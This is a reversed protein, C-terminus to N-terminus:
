PRRKIRLKGVKEIKVSTPVNDSMKFVVFRRDIQNEGHGVSRVLPATILFEGYVRLVVLESKSGEKAYELIQFKNKRVASNYGTYFSFSAFVGIVILIALIEVFDGLLRMHLRLKNQLWQFMTIYSSFSLITAVVALGIMIRFYWPADIRLRFYQIAPFKHPVLFIFMLFLIIQSSMTLLYLYRWRLFVSIALSVVFVLFLISFIFLTPVSAALVVTTNLSILDFPIDFFRCFGMEYSLAWLYASAPILALIIGDTIWSRASQAGAEM